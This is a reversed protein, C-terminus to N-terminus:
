SNQQPQQAQSQGQVAALELELQELAPQPVMGGIYVAGNARGVAEELRGVWLHELLVIAASTDPPITSSLTVIDEPTILGMLSDKIPGFTAAEEDNLDNVELVTVTDSADKRIFLLDVVQILGKQQIANLEPVIESMFQNGPCGVVMFEFPGITM